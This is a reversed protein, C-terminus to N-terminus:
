RSAFVVVGLARPNHHYRLLGPLPFLKLPFMKIGEALGLLLLDDAIDIVFPKLQPLFGIGSRLRPVIDQFFPLPPCILCFGM